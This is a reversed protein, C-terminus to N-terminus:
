SPKGVLFHHNEAAINTMVLPRITPIKSDPSHQSVLARNIQFACQQASSGRIYIHVHSKLEPVTLIWWRSALFAVGENPNPCIVVHFRLHQKGLQSQLQISTTWDGNKNTLDRSTQQASTGFFVHKGCSFVHPFSVKLPSKRWYEVYTDTIGLKKLYVSAGIGLEQQNGVESAGSTARIERRTQRGVGLDWVKQLLAGLDASPSKNISTSSEMAMTGWPVGLHNTHKMSFRLRIAPHDLSIRMVKSVEM